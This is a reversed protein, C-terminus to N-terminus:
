RPASTAAALQEIRKVARALADEDFLFPLANPIEHLPGDLEDSGRAANLAYRLPIEHLVVLTAAGSRELLRWYGRAYRRAAEDLSEGGPFCTARGLRRKVVRYEDIPAGELEGVDIDDFLPEEVLRLRGGTAADATERTRAFRTHVALELPVCGIQMGLLRAEERGRNTLPAPRTPDGNVRREFNLTSEAHRALVFLRM